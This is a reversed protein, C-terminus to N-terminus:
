KGKRRMREKMLIERMEERFNRDFVILRAIQDTTLIDKLSALFENRNKHIETTVNYFDDTLKKLNSESADKGKNLEDQLDDLVGDLHNELEKLDNQQQNRRAFFKLTNEENLNLAEILKVKELERIKKMAGHRMPHNGQMRGNPETGQQAFMMISFLFSIIVSYLLKKM